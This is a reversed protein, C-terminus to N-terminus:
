ERALELRRVSGTTVSLKEALASLGFDGEYLIGYQERRRAM